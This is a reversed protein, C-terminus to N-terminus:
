NSATSLSLWSSLSLPRIELLLEAPYVNGVRAGVRDGEVLLIRFLLLVLLSARCLREGDELLRDGLRPVLGIKNVELLLSRNFGVTFVRATEGLDDDGLGDPPRPALGMM